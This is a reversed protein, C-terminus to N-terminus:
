DAKRTKRKRIRSLTEQTMSLYSAIYKLSIRDALEPKTEIFRKYRKEASPIRGIYAREEAARYSEELIIRAIINSEPYHEYLYEVCSYELGILNANEIVQVNEESVQPPLGLGRISGVM